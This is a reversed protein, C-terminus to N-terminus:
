FFFIACLDVLKRKLGAAGARIPVAREGIAATYEARLAPGAIERRRQKWQLLLEPKRLCTDLRLERLAACRLLLLVDRVELGIRVGVSRDLAEFREIPFGECLRFDDSEGESGTGVTERVLHERHQLSEAVFGSLVDPDLESELRDMLHGGFADVAAIRERYKVIGIVAQFGSAEGDDDVDNEAKWPFSFVVHERGDAVEACQIRMEVADLKLEKVDEAACLEAAHIFHFGESRQGEVFVAGEDDLAEPEQWGVGHNVTYGAVSWLSQEECREPGSVLFQNQICQIASNSFSLSVLHVGITERFLLLGQPGEDSAM